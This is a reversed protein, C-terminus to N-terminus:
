GAHAASLGPLFSAQMHISVHFSSALNCLLQSALSFGEALYAGLEVHAQLTCPLQDQARAHLFFAGALAVADGPKGQAGTGSVADHEFQRTISIQRAVFERRWLQHALQYVISRDM